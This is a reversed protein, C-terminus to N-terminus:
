LLDKLVERYIAAATGLDRMTPRVPGDSKSRQKAICAAVDHIIKTAPITPQTM